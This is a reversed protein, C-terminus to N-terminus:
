YLRGTWSATREAIRFDVVSRVGLYRGVQIKAVWHWRGGGVGAWGARARDRQM